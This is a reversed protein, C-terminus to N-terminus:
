EQVNADITRTKNNIKSKMIGIIMYGVTERMSM